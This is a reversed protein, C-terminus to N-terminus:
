MMETLFPHCTGHLPFYYGDGTRGKIQTFAHVLVQDPAYSRRDGTRNFLSSLYGVDLTKRGDTREDAQGM